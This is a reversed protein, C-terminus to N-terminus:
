VEINKILKDVTNVFQDIDNIDGVIECLNKGAYGTHGNKDGYDQGNQNADYKKGLYKVCMSGVIEDGSYWSYITAGDLSIIDLEPLNLASNADVIKTWNNAGNTGLYQILKKLTPVHKECIATM